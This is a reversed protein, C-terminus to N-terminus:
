IPVGTESNFASLLLTSIKLSHQCSITRSTHLQTHWQIEQPCHVPLGLLGDNVHALHEVEHLGLGCDQYCKKNREYGQSPVQQDSRGVSTWVLRRSQLGETWEAKKCSMTGGAKQM